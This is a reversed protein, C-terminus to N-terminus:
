EQGGESVKKLEILLDRINEIRYFMNLIRGKHRQNLSLMALEKELLDIEVMIDDIIDRPMRLEATVNM